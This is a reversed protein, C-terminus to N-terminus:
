PADSQSLEIAREATLRNQCAAAVTFRITGDMNRAYLRSCEADRFAIWARQAQKLSIAAGPEGGNAKADKDFSEADALESKYTTNLIDDWAAAERDYCGNVGDESDNSLAKVCPNVISEICGRPDAKAKIM